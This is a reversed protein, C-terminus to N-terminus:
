SEINICSLGNDKLFSIFDVANLNKQLYNFSHFYMKGFVLKYGKLIAKHSYLGHEWDSISIISGINDKYDTLLFPYLNQADILAGEKNESYVLYDSNSYKRITIEKKVKKFFGETVTVECLLELEVKYVNKM